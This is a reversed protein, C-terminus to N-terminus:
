PAVARGGWCDPQRLLADFSPTLGREGGLGGVVDARLSDFTILVIPGEQPATLGRCSALGVMLLLLGLRRV